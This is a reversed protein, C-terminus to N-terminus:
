VTSGNRSGAILRIRWPAVCRLPRSASIPQSSRERPHRRQPSYIMQNCLYVAVNLNTSNWEGIGLDWRLCVTDADRVFDPWFRRAFQRARQAHIARYPRFLDIALPVIGIAALGVLVAWGARRRRGRDSRFASRGRGGPGGSPLHGARTNCSGRPRGM